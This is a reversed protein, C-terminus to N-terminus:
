RLVWAVRGDPLTRRGCVDLGRIRCREAQQAALEADIEAAVDADAAETDCRRPQRKAGPASLGFAACAHAWSGHVAVLARSSVVSRGAAALDYDGRTIACEPNVPDAMLALIAARVAPNRLCRALHMAMGRADHMANCHPCQVPASM